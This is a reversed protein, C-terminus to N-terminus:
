QLSVSVIIMFVYDFAALAIISDVWININFFLFHALYHISCFFGNVCLNSCRQGFQLYLIDYNWILLVFISWEKGLGANTCLDTLCFTTDGIHFKIYAHFRKIHLHWRPLALRKMVCQMKTVHHM